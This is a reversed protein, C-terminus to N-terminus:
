MATAKSMGDVRSHRRGIQKLRADFGYPPPEGPPTTVEIERVYGDFGVKTKVKDKM